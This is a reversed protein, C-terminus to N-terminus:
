ESESDTSFIIPKRVINCEVIKRKSKKKKSRRKKIELTREPLFPDFLGERRASELLEDMIEHGLLGPLFIKLNQDVVFDNIDCNEM